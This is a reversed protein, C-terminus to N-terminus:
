LPFVGEKWTELAMELDQWAIEIARPRVVAKFGKPAGLGRGISFGLLM